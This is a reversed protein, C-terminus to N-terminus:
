TEKKTPVVIPVEYRSPDFGMGSDLAALTKRLTILAEIVEMKDEKNKAAPSYKVAALQQYLYSEPLQRVFGLALQIVSDAGAQHGFDLGLQSM